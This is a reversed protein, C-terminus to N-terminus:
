VDILAKFDKHDFNSVGISEIQRLEDDAYLEELAKWSGKWANEPDLHPPPGADKVHQPLREEEGKCDMWSIEDNCRSWHLLIHVRIYQGSQYAKLNALSERVALKTREYGLHTYWVKTVVHISVTEDETVSKLGSDIAEALAAENSAGTDILRYGMESTLSHTVVENMREAPLNGVGIGILPLLAGDHRRVKPYDDDLLAWTGALCFCCAVAAVILRRVTM